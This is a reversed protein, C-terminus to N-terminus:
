SSPFHVGLMRIAIEKTAAWYKSTHLLNHMENVNAVRFSPLLLLLIYCCVVFSLISYAAFYCYNKKLSDQFQKNEM